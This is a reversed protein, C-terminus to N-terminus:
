QADNFLLISNGNSIVQAANFGFFTVGGTFGEFFINDDLREIETYFTREVVSSTAFETSNDNRAITGSWGEDTGFETWISDHLDPLGASGAGSARLLRDTVMVEGNLGNDRWALTRGIEVNQNGANDNVLHPLSYSYFRNGNMAASNGYPLTPDYPVIRPSVEGPSVLLDGTLFDGELLVLYRAEVNAGAALPGVSPTYNTEFIGVDVFTDNGAGNLVNIANNVTGGQIGTSEIGAFWGNNEQSHIYFSQHIGRVQTSNQMQRAVRRAAGLAPLLIGILLAIISIVVLLEILTFGHRPRPRLM